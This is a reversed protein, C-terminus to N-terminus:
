APARPPHLRIHPIQEPFVSPSSAQVANPIPQSSHRHSPQSALLVPRMVPWWPCFTPAPRSTAEQVSLLLRCRPFPVPFQHLSPHSTLDTWHRPLPSRHPPWPTLSLSVRFLPPSATRLLPLLQPPSPNLRFARLHHIGKPCCCRLGPNWNMFLPSPHRPSEM